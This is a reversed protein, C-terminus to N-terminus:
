KDKAEDTQSDHDLEDWLRNAMDHANAENVQEPTVLTTPRKPKAAATKAPAPLPKPEEATTPLWVCGAGTGALLVLGYWCGKM